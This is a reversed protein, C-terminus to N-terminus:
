MFLYQKHKSMRSIEPIMKNLLANCCYKDNVNTNSEGAKLIAVSVMIQTPFAEIKCFLREEPVELKRMKKPVYVVNNQSNYLQKAKLLKEHSHFVTQLKKQTYKLLIKRSRNIRM